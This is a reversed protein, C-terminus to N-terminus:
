FDGCCRCTLSKTSVLWNKKFCISLWATHHCAQFMTGTFQHRKKTSTSPHIKPPNRPYTCWSTGRLRLWFQQIKPGLNQVLVTSSGAKWKSFCMLHYESNTSGLHHMYILALLPFRKHLPLRLAQNRSSLLGHILTPLTLKCSPSSIECNQDTKEPIYTVGKSSPPKTKEYIWISHVFLM